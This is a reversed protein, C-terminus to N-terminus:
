LIGILIVIFVIRIRNGSRNSMFIMHNLYLETLPIKTKSIIAIKNNLFLVIITIAVVITIICNTKTGIVIIVTFIEVCVTVVQIKVFVFVVIVVIVYVIDIFGAGGFVDDDLVDFCGM